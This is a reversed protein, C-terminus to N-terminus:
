AEALASAPGALRSAIRESGAYYHKSLQGFQGFNVMFEFIHIKRMDPEFTM